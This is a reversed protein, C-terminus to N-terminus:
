NTAVSGSNNDDIKVLKPSNASFIKSKTIPLSFLLDNDKAEFLIGQSKYIGEILTLLSTLMIFMTLIIYTLNMPELQEAFMAAYSGISFMVVLFLFIPLVMKRTKSENKTRIRFLNMDQSMTAKLLSVLKKM